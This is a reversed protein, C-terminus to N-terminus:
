AQAAEDDEDGTEEPGVFAEFEGPLLGSLIFEREDDSLQPFAHQILVGDFCWKEFQATSANLDLANIQNTLPSLHIITIM